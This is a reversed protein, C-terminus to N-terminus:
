VTLEQDWNWKRRVQKDSQGLELGTTTIEELVRMGLLLDVRSQDLLAYWHQALNASQRSERVEGKQAREVNAINDQVAESEDGRRQRLVRLVEHRRINRKDIALIWVVMAQLIHRVPRGPIRFVLRHEVITLRPRANDLIIEPLLLHTKHIIVPTCIHALALMSQIALTIDM